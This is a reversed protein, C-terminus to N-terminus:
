IALTNTYITNLRSTSNHRSLGTGALLGIGLLLLISPESVVAIAHAAGISRSTLTIMDSAGPALQISFSQNNTSSILGNNFDSDSLLTLDLLTGNTLSELIFSSEATALEFGPNLIETNVLSSWVAELDITYTESLSFNSLLFIGQTIAFAASTGATAEGTVLTELSLGEGIDLADPDFGDVTASAFTDATAMQETIKDQDVIFADGSIILDDPRIALSGTSGSFETINLSVLTVADYIANAHTPAPATLLGSILVTSITSALISRHRNHQM